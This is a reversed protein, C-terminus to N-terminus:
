ESYYDKEKSRKLLVEAKRLEERIDSVAAMESGAEALEMAERFDQIATEYEDRALRIRARTRVAKWSDPYLRLSLELDALAEDYKEPTSIKSYALARNSLLIARIIGGEGEEPRTGVSELADTYHRAADEYSGKKVASNGEEKAKELTKVRKLLTRAKANEPDLSLAHRLISTAEAPKNTLFLVQGRLAYLDPSNSEYRLADRVAETAGDWEQRAMKFEVAWCRWETPVDKGEGELMKRAADLAANASKWDGRDRAKIVSDLHRQMTEANTKLSFLDNAAGNALTLAERITSLAPGPSGTALQCRALRQLTKLQPAAQQLTRAQQCDQLARRFQKIAIL